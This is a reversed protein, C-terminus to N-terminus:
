DDNPNMGARVVAEALQFDSEEDIDIAELASVEVAAPTIGIRNGCGAFTEKSFVYFCSNELYIPDLDQTRALVRPDHNVPKLARTWLRGQIRSVGFVSDCVEDGFYRVIAGGYTAPTVFPNTSHTQLVVSNRAHTLTNALVDNMATHGDRLQPPREVLDVTPFHEAADEFIFPSDTDVIVQDIAEVALLARVVHHYLPREGLVRYNKGPVRESSHRMPVIATIRLNQM